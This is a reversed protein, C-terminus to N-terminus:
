ERSSNPTPAVAGHLKYREYLLMLIEMSRLCKLLNIRM